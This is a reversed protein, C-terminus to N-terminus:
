PLFYLVCAGTAPSLSRSTYHHLTHHRSARSSKFCLRIVASDHLTRLGKSLIPLLGLPRLGLPLVLHLNFCFNATITKKFGFYLKPFFHFNFIEATHIRSAKHITKDSVMLIKLFKCFVKQSAGLFKVMHNDNHVIYM